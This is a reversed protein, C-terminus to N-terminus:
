KIPRPLKSLNEHAWEQGRLYRKLTVGYFQAVMSPNDPDFDGHHKLTEIDGSLIFRGDYKKGGPMTANRLEDAELLSIDDVNSDALNAGRLHAGILNTFDFFAGSLDAESLDANELIAFWLVANSMDASSLNANSLNAGHLWANSLDTYELNAGSMDADSLDANSLNAKSLDTEVFVINHMITHRLNAEHLSAGKFLFDALSADRLFQFVINRRERDLIRLTTITRIQAVDITPENEVDKKEILKKELLLEAMEDLYNQLAEEHQRDIALRQENDKQFKNFLIAGAGLVIPVILLEMWDWLTKGRQDKTLSGTYEGFGTWEAWGRGEVIRLHIAWLILGAIVLIIVLLLWYYPSSRFKSWYDSM